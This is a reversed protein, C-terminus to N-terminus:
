RENIGKIIDKVDKERLALEDKPIKDLLKKQHEATQLTFENQVRLEIIKKGQRDVVVEMEGVEKKLSDMANKNRSLEATFKQAQPFWKKLIQIAEARKKPANFNNINSIATMIAAQQRDLRQAQKFLWPPIHERKTIMASIGREFFDWREVFHAHVKDQWVSLNKQNGIIDKASLRGDVTIPTFCIHMHPTAEDMHVTAAFVNRKGVEDQIFQVAREFYERHEQAGTVAFFEPSATFLVEVMKVSDKRTRCGAEKIRSNIERHYTNDPQIIHYNNKTRSLDIDPNSAYKEKKRENHSEMSSIQGGKRKAFRMIVHM